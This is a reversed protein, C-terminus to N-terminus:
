NPYAGFRSSKDSTINLHTASNVNLMSSNALVGTLKCISLNYFIANSSNLSIYVTEINKSQCDLISKENLSLNMKLDSCMNNVSVFSSTAVISVTDRIHVTTDGSLFLRANNAEIVPIRLCNLTVHNLDDCNDVDIFLTDGKILYLGKSSDDAKLFSFSLSDSKASQNVLVINVNPKGKVVLHSFHPLAHSQAFFKTEQPIEIMLSLLFLGLISFFSIFIIRSTKM